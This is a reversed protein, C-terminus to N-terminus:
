IYLYERINVMFTTSGRKPPRAGSCVSFNGFGGGKALTLVYIGKIKMDNMYEYKNTDNANM